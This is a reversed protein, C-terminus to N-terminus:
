LFFLVDNLEVGKMAPEKQEHKGFIDNRQTFV